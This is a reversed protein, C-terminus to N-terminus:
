LMTYFNGARYLLKRVRSYLFQTGLSGTKIMTRFQEQPLWVINCIEPNRSTNVRSTFVENVNAIDLKLHIFLILMNPSYVVLNKQVDEQTFVGFVSLSEEMFERLAGQIANQDKKYRIGGGFDTLDGSKTDVGLGFFLKGNVITYVIVGGRAPKVHSWDINFAYRTFSFYRQRNSYRIMNSDIRQTIRSFKDDNNELSDSSDSVPTILNLM